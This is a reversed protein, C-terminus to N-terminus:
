VMVSVERCIDGAGESGLFLCPPSMLNVLTLWGNGPATLSDSGGRTRDEGLGGRLRVSWRFTTQLDLTLNVAKAACLELRVKPGSSLRSHHAGQLGRGQDTEGPGRREQLRGPQLPPPHVQSRDRLGRAAVAGVAGEREM